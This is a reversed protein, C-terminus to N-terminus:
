TFIGIADEPDAAYYSAKAARWETLASSYYSSSRQHAGARPLLTSVLLLLHLLFPSPRHLVSSSMPSGAIFTTTLTQAPLHPFFFHTQNAKTRPSFLLPSSDILHSSPPQTVGYEAAGLTSQPSHFLLIELYFKSLLIQFCAITNTFISIIPFYIIINPFHMLTQSFYKLYIILMFIILFKHGFHNFYTIYVEISNYLDALYHLRENKIM